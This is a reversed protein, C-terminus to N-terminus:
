MLRWMLPDLQDDVLVRLAFVPAIRHARLECKVGVVLTRAGPWLMRRVHQETLPLVYSCTM